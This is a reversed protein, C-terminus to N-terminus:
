ETENYIKRFLEDSDIDASGASPLIGSRSADSDDDDDLGIEASLADLLKESDIDFEEKDEGTPIQESEDSIDENAASDEDISSPEEEPADDQHVPILAQEEEATIGEESSAPPDLSSDSAETGPEAHLGTEEDPQPECSVTEAEDAANEDPSIFENTEGSKEAASAAPADPAEATLPQHRIRGIRSFLPVTILSAIVSAIYAGEYSTFRTIVACVSGCIVGYAIRGPLTTPLSSYEASCFVSVLMVATSILTIKVYDATNSAPACIFMTVTFAALTALMPPISIVRKYILYLACACLLIFSVEGLAGETNGLLHDFLTYNRGSEYVFGDHWFLSIVVRAAFASHIINKGSGGFAGRVIMVAFFSAAAAVYLPTKISMTLGCLMGCVVSSLDLVSRVNRKTLLTYLIDSGVASMVSVACIALAMIGFRCIAWGALVCLALILDLSITRVSEPSRLLPTSKIKQKVPLMHPPPVDSNGRAMEHIPLKAPCVYSCTGCGSCKDLRSISLAHKKDKDMSRIFASPILGDPCVSDCKACGICSSTNVFACSEDIFVLSHTSHATYAEKMDRVTGSMAGNEAFIVSPMSGDPRRALEGAICEIPTGLPIRYCGGSSLASGGISIIRSICPMGDSFARYIDAAAHASLVCTRGDETKRSSPLQSIVRSDEGLPYKGNVEIIDFLSSEGIYELLRNIHETSRREIVIECLDLGLLKLLIKAGGILERARHRITCKRDSSYIDSDLCSIVLRRVAKIDSFLQWEPIACLRIRELIEDDTMASLKKKEFPSEAISYENDNEIRIYGIGNRKDISAIRGSVSSYVPTLDAPADALLQGALVQDGEAAALTHRPDFSLVVEPIHEITHIDTNKTYFPKKLKLGYGM